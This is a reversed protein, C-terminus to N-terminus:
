APAKPLANLSTKEAGSLAAFYMSISTGEGVESTVLLAGAHGHVIGIVGALGLGKAGSRTSFFPDFIRPLIHAPIGSGHDRVTIAVLIREAHDDALFSETFELGARKVAHVELHVQCRPESSAEAANTVLNMLAQRLQADDARVAVLDQAIKTVLRMRKPLSLEVLRRMETVMVGLDLAIKDGSGHGSFVFMQRCLDSAERGIKVVRDMAQYSPHDATLDHMAIDAHGVMGFLRNNFEHALRGALKGLSELKQTQLIQTELAFQQDQAELYDTIDTAVSYFGVITEDSNYDPLLIRDISHKAGDALILKEIFRVTEGALAQQCRPLSVAYTDEPLLDKLPTPELSELGAFAEQYANNSFRRVLNGDYYCIMQPLVDAINHLRKQATRENEIKVIVRSSLVSLSMACIGFLDLILWTMTRLDGKAFDRFLVSEEIAVVSAAALVFWNLHTTLFIGCRAASWFVMVMPVLALWFPHTPPFIVGTFVVVCLLAMVVVVLAGETQHSGLSLSKPPKLWCLLAPAVAFFGTASRMWLLPASVMFAPFSLDEGPFVGLAFAAFPASFIPAVVGALLVRQLQTISYFGRQWSCRWQLLLSAVFIETLDAVGFLLSDVSFSGEMVFHLLFSSVVLAPWISRGWWVLMAAGVGVAPWAMGVFHHANTFHYGLWGAALHAVFAGGLKVPMPLSKASM